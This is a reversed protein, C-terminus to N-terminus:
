NLWDNANISENIKEFEKQETDSQLAKKNLMKIEEQLNAKLDMLKSSTM